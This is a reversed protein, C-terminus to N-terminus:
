KTRRVSIRYLGPIFWKHGKDFVVIKEAFIKEAEEKPFDEGIRLSAVELDVQWIGAHDCDDCIYLWLLKYCCPMSKLLPKKWKETDTFRKAM